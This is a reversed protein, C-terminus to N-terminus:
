YSLLWSVSVASGSGSSLGWSIMGGRAGEGRPRKRTLLLMRLNTTRKWVEEKRKDGTDDGFLQRWTRDTSCGPGERLIGALIDGALLVTNRHHHGAAMRGAFGEGEDAWPVRQIHRHSGALGEVEHGTDGQDLGHRPATGATGPPPGVLRQPQSSTLKGIDKGSLFGRKRYSCTRVTRYCYRAMTGVDALGVRRRVVLRGLRLHHLAHHPLCQARRHPRSRRPVGPSGHIGPCLLRRLQRFCAGSCATPRGWPSFSAGCAHFVDDDGYDDGSGSSCCCYNKTKTKTPHSCSADDGGGDNSM